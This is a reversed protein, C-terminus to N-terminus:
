PEADHMAKLGEQIARQVQRWVEVNASTWSGVLRDAPDGDDPIINDPHCHEERWMNDVAQLAALMTQDVAHRRAALRAFAPGLQSRKTQDM